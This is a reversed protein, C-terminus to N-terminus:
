IELKNVQFSIFRITTKTLYAKNGSQSPIFSTLFFKHLIQQFLILSTDNIDSVSFPSRDTPNIGTIHERYSFIPM